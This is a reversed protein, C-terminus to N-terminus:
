AVRPPRRRRAPGFVGIKRRVVPLWALAGMAQAAILALLLLGPGTLLVGPAAWEFVGFATSGGIDLGPVSYPTGGGLDLVPPPVPQTGRGSGTGGTGGTGGTSGVGTGGQGGPSGSGPGDTSSSTATPGDTPQPTPRPSPTPSPTEGPLTATPTPTPTATPGTTPTPTPTPTRTPTPTPTPSRTPSPTPTSGDEVQMDISIPSKATGSCSVSSFGEAIWKATGKIVGTVKVKLILVDDTPDGHIGDGIKAATAVIGRPASTSVAVSWPLDNSVSAVSAANVEYATPIAITICAIPAASSSTNTIALTVTTVTGLPVKSPNEVIKWSQAAAAAPIAIAGVLLIAGIGAASARRLRGAHFPGRGGRLTRGGAHMPEGGTM